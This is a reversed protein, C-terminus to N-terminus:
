SETTPAQRLQIGLENLQTRSVTSPTESMLCQGKQTKPFAIVERISDRKLLIMMIRDLGFAIGAHPPAGYQLANLFFGFKSTAEADSIGLIRFVDQQVDPKHIRVSGGGIENGNLVLDYAQALVPDKHNSNKLADLDKLREEQDRRPATFPHHMSYLQGTKPDSEFMPFDTIWVPAWSDAPILGLKEALHVRLNGLTAHVIDERGAGFFLIDGEQSGCQRALEALQDSTFFKSIVSKLGEQEHKMWALGRAGFDRGVWETLDDIDKRSLTAGGPVPLVKVRGGQHIVDKFVKFDSEVALAAVDVLQMGFRLDPADKGYLEMADRYSMRPLPLSLEFHFVEEFVQAWLAEMSEMLLEANVFSMELDLQTFEPQRDARLDEDRFCKVIQFYKEMGGVMLIQKFLQPSQPLAFFEGPSMRAPVLFDRAGEPTSKNLVPTEIEIFGRAELFRRIAMNLQSRKFLAERMEQRRLDLYRYRLRIDEGADQYEDLGFPPTASQNLIEFRDVLIEISGNKLRPNINEASRKRLLGAALIVFESRISEAAGFHDKIVSSDFMLQIIGTRDRLDIFICGGQDRYRLVWGAVTVRQGALHEGLSNHAFRARLSAAQWDEPLQTRQTFRTELAQVAAVPKLAASGPTASAAGSRSTKKLVAKKTVAVTAKQGAVKSTNPKQVAKQATKRAAKKSVTTSKKKSAM